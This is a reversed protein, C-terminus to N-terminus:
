KVLIIKKVEVFEESSLLVVYVGSAVQIGEWDRGDWIISNYGAHMIKKNIPEIIKRGYLDFIRLTVEIAKQLSFGIITSSNFPNPYNQHLYFQKSVGSLKTSGISTIDDPQNLYLLRYLYLHGLAAYWVDKRGSIYDLHQQSYNASWDVTQPHLMVHYIANNLYAINFQANLTDINTTAYSEWDTKGMERSVYLPKFLGFTSDWGAFKYHYPPEYLRNVLLKEKGLLLDIDNDHQGYPCIWTYVYENGGSSFHSPLDLNNKISAICGAVEYELNEGYPVFPHTQSHAAAETYGDNLLNQIKLWNNGEDCADTILGMTIWIKRQQFQKVSNIYDPHYWYAIDDISATVVAKRDDYYECIGDFSAQICQKDQNALRIFLSDSSHILAVSLYFENDIPEYRITEIGNYFATDAQTQIEQWEDNLHYKKFVRVFEINSLIKYKYTIPYQLGYDQHFQSDTTIVFEDSCLQSISLNSAFMDMSAFVSVIVIIIKYFLTCLKM